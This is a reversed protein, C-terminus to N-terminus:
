CTKADIPDVFRRCTLFRMWTPQSRALFAFSLHRIRMAFLSSLSLLCPFCFPYFAYCSSSSLSHPFAFIYTDVLSSSVRFPPDQQVTCNQRKTGVFCSFQETWIMTCM